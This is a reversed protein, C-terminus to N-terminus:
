LMDKYRAESNNVKEGRLNGKVNWIVCSFVFFFNM